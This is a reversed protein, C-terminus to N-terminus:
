RLVAIDDVALCYYSQGLEDYSKIVGVVEIRANEPPYDDPYRHNGNWIFELGQQCCATADEIVIFHYSNGTRDDYSSYYLGSMKSTKGRYDDPSTMINYVEAYVLTSSLATLDIDAGGSTSGTGEQAQTDKSSATSNNQPADGNSCGAGPMGILCLLLVISVHKKM